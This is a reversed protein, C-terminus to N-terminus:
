PMPITSQHDAMIYPYQFFRLYITLGKAKQLASETIRFALFDDRQIERLPVSGAIPITGIFSGAILTIEGLKINNKYFEFLTDGGLSPIGVEVSAEILYGSSIPRLIPFSYPQAVPTQSAVQQYWVFSALTHPLPQSAGSTGLSGPLNLSLELEKVTPYYADRIRPFLKDGTGSTQTELTSVFREVVDTINIM